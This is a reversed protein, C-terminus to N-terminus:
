GRQLGRECHVCFCHGWSEPMGSGLRTFVPSRGDHVERPHQSWVEVQGRGLPQCWRKLLFERGSWDASELLHLNWIVARFTGQTVGVGM